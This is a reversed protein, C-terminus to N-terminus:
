IRKVPSICVISDCLAFSKVLSISTIVIFSDFFILRTLLKTNLQKLLCDERTINELTLQHRFLLLTFHLALQSGEYLVEFKFSQLWLLKIGFSQLVYELVVMIESRVQVLPFWLEVLEELLREVVVDISVPHISTAIQHETLFFVM